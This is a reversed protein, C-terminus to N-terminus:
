RNADEAVIRIFSYVTACFCNCSSAKPTHKPAVPFPLWAKKGRMFATCEVVNEVVVKRCSGRKKCSFEKTSGGNSNQCIHGRGCRSIVTM